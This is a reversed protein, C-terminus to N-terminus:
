QLAGLQRATVLLKKTKVYKMLFRQEVESYDKGEIDINDAKLLEILARVDAMELRVRQINSSAYGSPRHELTFRLCKSLEQQVESLEEILCVLLHETRNV